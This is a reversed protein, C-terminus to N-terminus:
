RIWSIAPILQVIHGWSDNFRSGLKNM